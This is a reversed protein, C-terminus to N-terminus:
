KLGEVEAQLARLDALSASGSSELLQAGRALVEKAGELHGLAALVQGQMGLAIGEAETLGARAQQEASASFARAAAELDAAVVLRQGQVFRAAGLMAPDGLRGCLEVQQAALTLAQPVRGLEMALEGAAHLAELQGSLDALEGLIRAAYRMRDLAGVKDGRSVELAALQQLVQAKQPEDRLLELADLAEELHGHADELRGAGAEIDALTRLAGVVAAKSGASRAVNLANEAQALGDSPDLQAQLAMFAARAQGSEALELGRTILAAAQESEGRNMCLQALQHLARSEGAQDQTDRMLDVLETAAQQALAKDGVGLALEFRQQHLAALGETDGTSLRLPVAMELHDRAEDLHDLRAHLVGALHHAAAAGTRDKAESFGELASLAHELAQHVQGAAEKRFAEHLLRMARGTDTM